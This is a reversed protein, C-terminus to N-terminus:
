VVNVAQCVNNKLAKCKNIYEIKVSAERPLYEAQCSKLLTLLAFIAIVSNSTLQHFYVM